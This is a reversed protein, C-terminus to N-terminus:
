WRDRQDGPMRSAIVQLAGRIGAIPNKVEHAVVAAMEGLRALAAQERLQVEQQKRQTVEYRIAMYQYPRGQADLFPVITTDVWYLSRDKARNCIEGHWIRGSAITQWLDRMFEKPHHGSNLVRHDRGLLEDRGYKSIECFKDNVFTIAGRPDTTAVIASQDLAYRMDALDHASAELQRSTARLRLVIIATAWTIALDIARDPLAFSPLDAIPLRLSGVLTLLSVIWTGIIALRSSGAFSVLLVPVVYLVGINVGPPSTFDAAFIGATLAAAAAILPPRSSM